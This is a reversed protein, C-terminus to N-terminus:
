PPMVARDQLVRQASCGWNFRGLRDEFPLVTVSILIKCDAVQIAANLVLAEIEAKAKRVKPSPNEASTDELEIYSRHIRTPM